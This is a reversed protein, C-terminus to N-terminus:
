APRRVLHDPRAEGPSRSINPMRSTRHVSVAEGESGCIRYTGYIVVVALVVAMAILIEASQMARRESEM